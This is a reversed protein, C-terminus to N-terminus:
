DEDEDDDEDGEEDGEEDDDDDEDEEDEDDEKPKEQEKKPKEEEKAPPPPAKEEKKEEKPPAKEEKKEEKPPAQEAEKKEPEKQEEKEEQQDPAPAPAEEYLVPLPCRRAGKVNPHQLLKWAKDENLADNPSDTPRLALMVTFRDRKSLGTAGQDFPRCILTVQTEGGNPTLTGFVPRMRFRHPRTSKMKFMVVEKGDNRLSLKQSQERGLFPATWKVSSLSLTVSDTM